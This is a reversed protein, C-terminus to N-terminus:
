MAVAKIQTRQDSLGGVFSMVIKGAEVEYQKVTVLGKFNWVEDM